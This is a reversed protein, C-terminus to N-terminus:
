KEEFYGVVKDDDWAYIGDRHKSAPAHGEPETCRRYGTTTSGLDQTAFLASCTPWDAPPESLSVMDKGVWIETDQSHNRITVLLDPFGPSHGEQDVVRALVNVWTGPEEIPHQPERRLAKM